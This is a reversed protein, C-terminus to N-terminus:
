NLRGLTEISVANPEANDPPASKRWPLLMSVRKRYRRYDDGFLDILDHEELLIGVVIYAAILPQRLRTAVLGAVASAILIIAFSSYTDM